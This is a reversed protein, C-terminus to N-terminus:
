DAFGQTAFAGHQQRRVALGDHLAVVRAPSIQRWAVHYGAGDVAFHKLPTQLM